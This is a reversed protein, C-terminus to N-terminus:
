AFFFFNICPLKKELDYLILIVRKSNNNFPTGRGWFAGKTKRETTPGVGEEKVPVMATSVAREEQKDRRRGGIEGGVNVIYSHCSWQRARLLFVFHGDVIFYDTALGQGRMANLLCRSRVRSWLQSPPYHHCSRGQTCCRRGRLSRLCSAVHM